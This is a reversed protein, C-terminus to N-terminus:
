KWYKNKLSLYRSIILCLLPKPWHFASFICQIKSLLEKSYKWSPKLFLLSHIPKRIIINEFIVNIFFEACPCIALEHGLRVTVHSEFVSSHNTRKRYYQLVIPRYGRSKRDLVKYALKALPLTEFIRFFNCLPKLTFNQVFLTFHGDNDAMSYFGIKHM